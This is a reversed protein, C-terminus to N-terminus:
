PTRHPGPGGIGRGARATGPGPAGTVGAGLGLLPRLLGGLGLPVSLLLPLLPLLLALSVGGVSQPGQGGGEGM